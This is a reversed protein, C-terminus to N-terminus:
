VTTYRGNKKLEKELKQRLVRYHWCVQGRGDKGFRHWSGHLCTCSYVRVDEVLIWLSEGDVEGFFKDSVVEQLM